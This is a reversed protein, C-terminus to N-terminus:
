FLFYFSLVLILCMYFANFFNNASDPQPTPTSECDCIRELSGIGRSTHQNFNYSSGQASIADIADVQCTLLDTFDYTDGSSYGRRIVVTQTTGDNTNSEASTFSRDDGTLESGGVHNGLTREMVDSTGEGDVIIAYTGDMAEAGFGVASYKNLEGTITIELTEDSTKRGIEVTVGDVISTSEVCIEYEDDNDAETPSATPIATTTPAATAATPNATTPMMSPAATTPQMTPAATTPEATTPDQTPPALTQGGKQKGSHNTFESNTGLSGAGQAYIISLSTQSPSFTYCSSCTGSVDNDRTLILALNAQNFTVDWNDAGSIEDFGRSSTRTTVERTGLTLTSTIDILVAYTGDMTTGGFGIGYGPGLDTLSGTLSFTVITQSAGIDIEIDALGGLVGSAEFIVSNVCVITALLALVVSSM